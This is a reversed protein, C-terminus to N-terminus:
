EDVDISATYDAADQSFAGLRSTHLIEKEKKLQVAESKASTIALLKGESSM